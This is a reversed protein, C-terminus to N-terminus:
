VKKDFYKDICVLRHTSPQIYKDICEQKYM